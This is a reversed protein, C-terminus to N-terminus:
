PADVMIDVLTHARRELVVADGCDLRRWVAFPDVPTHLVVLLAIVTGHTRAHKVLVLRWADAAAGSV